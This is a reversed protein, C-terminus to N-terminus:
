RLGKAQRFVEQATALDATDRPIDLIFTKYGLRLYRAIESAVTPYDGVLYPCFTQYNQYPWLWYPSAEIKTQSLDDLKKHWSSDSTKLAMAHQLQGRRDAPFREWALQWATATDAAAILGVRIGRDPPLLDTADPTMQTAPEPYEVATVRLTIAAARGAPSSGSMLIQPPTAQLTPTLRLGQVTYYQGTYTVSGGALLQQIIQCYEILRSYREDHATPDGLAILDGKFGGAILNLCVQRGYLVGFSTVMKAVAYPHLYLPQVAVLPALQRTEQIIIQAVLWPDIISNDAYILIGDCGADDSWKAIKLVQEVYGQSFDKSQPCTTFIRVNDTM